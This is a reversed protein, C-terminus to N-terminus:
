LDTREPAADVEAKPIANILRERPTKLVQTLEKTISLCVAPLRRSSRSGTLTPTSENDRQAHARTMKEVDKHASGRSRPLTIEGRTTRTTVTM